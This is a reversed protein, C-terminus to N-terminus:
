HHWFMKRNIFGLIIVILIVTAMTANVFNPNLETDNISVNSDVKITKTTKKNLTNHFVNAPHWSYAPSLQIDTM